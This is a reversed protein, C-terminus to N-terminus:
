EIAMITAAKARANSASDGMLSFMREVHAVYQTRLEGSKPDEKLYHDRDPLGLGGQDALAIVSTADKFDQESRFRFAVRVGIGHLRGIAGSLGAKNAIARIPELQADLPALGRTEIAPEDMCSAYYGGIKTTDVDGTNRSAAAEELIRRLTALNRQQLEDFRGWKPQDPPTPNRAIWGGCAFQYFNSCPDATRDMARLDFGPTAEPQGGPPEAGQLRSQAQAVMLSLPVVVFLFTKLLRM